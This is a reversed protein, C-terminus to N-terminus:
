RDSSTLLFFFSTQPEPHKQRDQYQKAKYILICNYVKPFGDSNMLLHSRSPDAFAESAATGIWEFPIQAQGWFVDAESCLAAEQIVWGRSFWSCSCIRGLADIEGTEPDFSLSQKRRFEAIVQDGVKYAYSEGSNLGCLYQCLANLVAQVVEDIELGLWIIAKTACRYILHMLQVQVNKEVTNQQDICLADAWVIRAAGVYRFCQLAEFLSRTISVVCRDCIISKQDTVDGWAYSIAEYGLCNRDLDAPFLFCQIPDDRSGPLLQLLRISRQHPLPKYVFAM